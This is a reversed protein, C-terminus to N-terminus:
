RIMKFCVVMPFEYFQGKAARLTGLILFVWQQIVEAIMFLIMPIAFIFVNEFLIALPATFALLVFLHILFTISHNLAQAAHFRCLASENKKVFYIVLPAVFGVLLMGIYTMMAWTNEDSSAPAHPHPGPPVGPPGYGYRPDYAQGYPPAQGYGSGPNQGYPPGQGYGPNQGYGANQGHGPTDQGYGPAQGYPTPHPPPQDDGPPPSPQETVVCFRVWDM